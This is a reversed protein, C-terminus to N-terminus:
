RARVDGSGQVDASVQAGGTHTVSGSGSVSAVLRRSVDVAVDGSGRVTVDVEQSLLDDASYEGSGEVVVRQAQTRGALRVDGSGAIDVLVAEADVDDVRVDGSGQVSVALRPGPVARADVDGSGRVAVADLESVVLHYQIPGTGGWGWGGGGETGLLLVGDRVESTLRPLVDEGATVTLSPEDGHEITLDGSTSLEVARVGEVARTETVRPGDDAGLAAPVGCGTLTLATAAVAATTPWPRLTM